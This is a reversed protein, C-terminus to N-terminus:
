LLTMMNDPSLLMNIAYANSLDNTGKESEFMHVELGDAHWSSICRMEDREYWRIENGGVLVTWHDITVDMLIIIM